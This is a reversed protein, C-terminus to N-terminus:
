QRTLQIRYLGNCVTAGTPDSLRLVVTGAFDDGQPSYAFTADRVGLLTRSANHVTCLIRHTIHCRDDVELDIQCGPGAESSLMVLEPPRDGCDGSQTTFTALYSTNPDVGCSEDTSDSNCSTMLLGAAICCMYALTKM